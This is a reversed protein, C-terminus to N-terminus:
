EIMLASYKSKNGYVKMELWDSMGELQSQLGAAVLITLLYTLFLDGVMYTFITFYDYYISSQMSYTLFGIVMPALVYFTISIRELHVWKRWGLVRNILITLKSKGLWFSPLIFLALGFLFVLPVLILYGYSDTNPGDNPNVNFYLAVLSYSMIMLALGFFHLFYQLKSSSRVKKALSEEFAKDSGKGLGEVMFLGLFLGFFFAGM